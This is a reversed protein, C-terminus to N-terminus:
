SSAQRAASSASPAVTSCSGRAGSRQHRSPGGAASSSRTMACTSASSTTPLPSVSRAAASRSAAPAGMSLGTAASTADASVSAVWATQAAARLTEGNGAVEEALVHGIVLDLERAPPGDRYWREPVRALQEVTAGEAELATRWAEDYGMAEYWPADTYLLLVRM